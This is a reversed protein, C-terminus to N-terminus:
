DALPIFACIGGMGARVRSIHGRGATDEAILVDGPDMLVSSGDGVTLEVGTSLYFVFQRRPAPHFDTLAGERRHVFTVDSVARTLTRTGEHEV